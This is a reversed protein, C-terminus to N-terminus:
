EDVSTPVLGAVFHRFSDTVESVNEATTVSGDWFDPDPEMEHDWFFVKGCADGTLGLCIANGFPDDMIWLLERPIRGEYCDIHWAIDFYSEERFGGIHHIMTEGNPHMLRGGLFGGNCAMLFERYDSPLKTKLEREFATLQEESIATGKSKIEDLFESTTM